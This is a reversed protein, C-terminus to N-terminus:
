KYWVGIRAIYFNMVNYDNVVISREAVSIDSFSKTCGAKLAYIKPYSTNNQDFVSLEFCYASPSSNLAATILEASGEKIANELILTKDLVTLEDRSINTSDVANWESSSIQSLYMFSSLVILSLLTIGIFSDVSLVFGRVGMKKTRM